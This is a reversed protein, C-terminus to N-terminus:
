PTGAALRAGRARAVPQLPEADGSVRVAPGLLQRLPLWCFIWNM